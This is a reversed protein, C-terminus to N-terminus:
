PCQNTMKGSRPGLGLFNVPHMQPAQFAYAGDEGNINIDMWAVQNAEDTSHVNQINADDVM